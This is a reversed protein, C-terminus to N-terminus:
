TDVVENNQGNMRWKENTKLKEGKRFVIIKTKKLAYKLNWNKPGNAFYRSAIKLTAM